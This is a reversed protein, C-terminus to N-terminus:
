AQGSWYEVEITGGLASHAVLSAFPMAAEWPRKLYSAIVLCNQVVKGNAALAPVGNVGISAITADVCTIRVKIVGFQLSALAQTLIDTETDPALIHTMFLYKSGFLPLEVHQGSVSALPM